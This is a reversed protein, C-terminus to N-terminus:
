QSDDQDSFALRSMDFHEQVTVVEGRVTEGTIQITVNKMKAIRLFKFFVKITMKTQLIENYINVKTFHAKADTRKHTRAVFDNVLLKLYPPDIRLERSLAMALKVLVGEPSRVPEEGNAPRIGKKPRLELVGSTSEIETDNPKNKTM